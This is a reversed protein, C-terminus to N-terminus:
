CFVEGFIWSFLVGAVFTFSVGIAAYWLYSISYFDALPTSCCYLVFSLHCM